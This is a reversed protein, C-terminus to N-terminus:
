ISFCKLNQEDDVKLWIQWDIWVSTYFYNISFIYPWKYKQGNKRIFMENSGTIPFDKLATHWSEEPKQKIFKYQAVSKLLLCSNYSSQSAHVCVHKIWFLWEWFINVKQIWNLKKLM